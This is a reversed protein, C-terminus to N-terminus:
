WLVYGASTENINRKTLNVSIVHNCWNTHLNRMTYQWNPCEHIVPILPPSTYISTSMMINPVMSMLEVRIMIYKNTVTNVFLYM